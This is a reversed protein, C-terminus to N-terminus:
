AVCRRKQIAGIPVAHAALMAPINWPKEIRDYGECACSRSTGDRTTKKKRGEKAM